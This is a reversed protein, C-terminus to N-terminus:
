AKKGHMHPRTTNFDHKARIAGGVNLGFEQAFDMIRIVCDALEVELSKFTPVHEDPKDLNKRIAELAESLESHMLSIKLGMYPVLQNHEKDAYFGKAHANDNVLKAFVNFATPLVEIFYGGIESDSM